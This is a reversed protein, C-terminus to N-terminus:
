LKDHQHDLRQKGAIVLKERELGHGIAIRDILSPRIPDAGPVGQAQKQRGGQLCPKNAVLRGLFPGLNCDNGFSEGSTGWVRLIKIASV